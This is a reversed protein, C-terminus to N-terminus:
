KVQIVGTAELENKSLDSLKWKDDFYGQSVINKINGNFVLFDKFETLGRVAVPVFPLGKDDIGTWWPLGQSVVVYHSNFPYIYLLGFNSIENSKLSMPLLNNSILSNTESTGFLILNSSELDSPRVEKDSIVRPFFMVRGLFEGRYVSWNAAQLAVNMRSKLIEPGPNDKTGFVYIHSNSFADFIPGEVGMRKATGPIYNSQEWQGNQKTFAIPKLMSVPIKDGDIQLSLSKSKKFFPHTNIDLTFAGLNSTTIVINNEAIFNADISALTGPTLEDFTVWYAKNYKYQRSVFRVKQPYPNRKFNSFWKFIFEDAYAKEWSNHGVGPYEVYEVNTGIEKMKKVWERTGEPKVVPDAGGQFFHVPFNLANPALQDAGAPPAPCVPAIAAWTDPRTLGLWLTGGGGMSLGTLYIRNTDISFRKKVDALVDYVDKEPVGQYGNTGRAFPSAVIYEVNDWQPFIRSTEVDTAGQTNSKGFVRRLSLRHNSGAGHLMIVLPYKKLEDYNKPLYLGYPQESNDVDSHITLVQPGAPLKQSYSPYYFFLGLIFSLTVTSKQILSSM